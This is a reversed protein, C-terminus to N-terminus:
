FASSRRCSRVGGPRRCGVLSVARRRAAPASLRGYRRRCLLSRGPPPSSAPPRLAARRRNAVNAGTARKGKCPCNSSFLATWMDVSETATFRYPQTKFPEPKSCLLLSSIPSPSASRSVLSRDSVDVDPLMVHDSPNARKSWDCGDSCARPQHSM